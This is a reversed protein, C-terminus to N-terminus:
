SNLSLILVRSFPQSATTLARAAEPRGKTTGVGGEVVVSCGAVAGDRGEITDSGGAYGSEGAGDVGDLEHKSNSSNSGVRWRARTAVM